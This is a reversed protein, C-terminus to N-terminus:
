LCEKQGVESVTSRQTETDANTCVRSSSGAVPFGWPIGMEFLFSYVASCHPM